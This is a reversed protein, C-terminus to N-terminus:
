SALPQAGLQKLFNELVVVEGQQDNLMTEALARVQSNHTVQLIGEVMHIGGLHHRLMLQCFLIDEANGTTTTLQNMQETSAMGPMLGNVLPVPGGPMWTMPKSTGTPLLKWGQLWVAMQGIQNQQTLAIDYGLVRIDENSGNRYELMGMAVAQAHHTSMDRAFGAEASNNGPARVEPTILGAAYGIGILLLASLVGLIWRTLRRQPM